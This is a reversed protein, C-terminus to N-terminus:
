QGAEWGENAESEGESAWGEIEEESEEAGGSEESEWGESAEESLNKLSRM